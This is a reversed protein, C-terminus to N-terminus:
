GYADEGAPPLTFHFTAGASPASEVWLRGGHREVIRTCIALGVGTSEEGDKRELREFMEFIVGFYAPDIGIGNDQVSFQWDAGVRKASVQVRPAEEGRFKIANGVLNQFVSELLRPDAQVKPLSGHTVV